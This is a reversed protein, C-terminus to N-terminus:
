QPARSSPFSICVKVVEAPRVGCLGGPKGAEANETANQLNLKEARNSLYM